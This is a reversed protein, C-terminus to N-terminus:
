SCWATAPELETNDYEAGRHRPTTSLEIETGGHETHHNRQAENENRVENV